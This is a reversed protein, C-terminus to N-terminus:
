PRPLCEELDGIDPPFGDLLDLHRRVPEGPPVEAPQVSRAAVGNGLSRHDAEDRLLDSLVPAVTPSRGARSAARPYGMAKGNSALDVAQDGDVGDTRPFVASRGHSARIRGEDTRWDNALSYALRPIEPSARPSRHIRHEPRRFRRLTLLPAGKRPAAKRASPSPNSGEIRRHRIAANSVAAIWWKGTRASM